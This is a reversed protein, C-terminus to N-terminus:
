YISKGSFSFKLSSNTVSLGHPPYLQYLPFLKLLLFVGAAVMTASHILASVPAPGAMADPLWSTLPLQASKGLAATLFLVALLPSTVYLFNNSNIHTLFSNIDTTGTSVLIILFALLFGFDGIRTMLFAKQAAKAANEEDYWFGILLFSSLGVFEWSIFTFVFSGSLVLLLMSGIFFSIVRFFFLRRVSIFKVSYLVVLLGVASVILSTLWELGSLTLSFTLNYGATTFWTYEIKDENGSLSVVLLLSLFVSFSAIM